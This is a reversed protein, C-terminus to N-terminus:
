GEALNAAARFLQYARLMDPAAVEVTRGDIREIGPLLAAREGRLSSSFEIRIRAPGDSGLPEPAKGELLRIVARRAADHILRRTQDPPLCCAATRSEAQKVVAAEVGPLWAEAEAALSQDGTVLLVPAGCAGCAAANLATEGALRGNLWVNSIAASSWTHDLIARPTGMRAHYGVFFVADVGGQVGQIMPLGAPSGANLRAQPHLEEILINYGSAHGDTVEIEWPGISLVGEIAANIDATMLRRFRQYEQTRPDVHDPHTVGTIGEMDAAILLRM